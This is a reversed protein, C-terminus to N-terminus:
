TTRREGQRAMRISVLTETAVYTHSTIYTVQFEFKLYSVISCRTYTLQLVELAIFISKKEASAPRGEVIKLQNIEIYEFGNDLAWLLRRQSEEDAITGASCSSGKLNSVM